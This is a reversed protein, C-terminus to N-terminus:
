KVVVKVGNLIYMGRGLTKLSNLNAGSMLLKGDMSYVDGRQNIKEIASSVDKVGDIVDKVAAAICISYDYDETNPDIVPCNLLDLVASCPTVGHTKGHDPSKAQIGDFYIQEENVTYSVLTGILGNVTAGKMVPKEDGPISFKIPEVYEDEPDYDLTDGFIFIAPDGAPISSMAKVALFTEADEDEGVTYQGVASYAYAGDPADVPTITVSHCWDIIRGPKVNKYFTFEDPAVYEEDVACIVLGSNSTPETTSWTCFRCNSEGAHMYNTSQGALNKGGLLSRQYGIAKYTYLTPITKLYVNNQNGTGDVYVYLGTAKNQLVYVPDAEDKGYPLVDRQEQANFVARYARYGETATAVDEATAKKVVVKNITKYTDLLAQDEDSLQTELTVPYLQFEAAHFYTWGGEGDYPGSSVNEQFPDFEINNGARRAITFRLKNYSGELDIPLCSVVESPKSYPAEICGINTWTEGDNSGQVYMRVVHGFDNGRRTMEVQVLGSVPENLAVQLYPQQKYQQHWDSHWFTSANGDILYEIHLGESPDSANSSLQSADTILADGRTYSIGMMDIAMLMNEKFDAFLDVYNAEGTGEEVFRFMSADKDDIADDHMFFLRNSERLEEGGIAELWTTTTTVEAGEENTSTETESELKAATVFTGWMTHQDEQTLGDCNDGGEKNFGYADYMEETPYMIRYWKDTEVGNAKEMISKYMAKLMVSYKHSQAATYSGAADYAKAAAYLAEYASVAEMDSWYGPNSGEEISETANSYTSLANRLETPDVMASLFADYAAKLANYDEVTIDEDAIAANTEYATELAAAVDGMMVFQSTPSPEDRMLQIEAAHWFTRFANNAYATNTAFVRIYSFAEDMHFPMSNEAGADTHPLEFVAIQTWETADADNAGALVVKAPRDNDAGDRERLYFTCDGVLDQMGSIQVYHYGEEGETILSYPGGEEGYMRPYQNSSHWSTHWFSSANGDILNGINTGESEDSNPSSLQSASTIQKLDKADAMTAAIEARLKANLEVLVDHNKIPEFAEVLEAVEEESVPELYWESTWCDGAARGNGITRIWFTLEQEIGTDTQRYGHFTGDSDEYGLSSSADEVPTGHNNQHFYSGDRPETPLRMAFIDREEEGGFMGNQVAHKGAYDFILHTADAVDATMYMRNEQPSSFSIYTDLGVNQLLISDGTESKTFKWVFNALGYNITSYVGKNPHDKSYSAAIAKDVCIPKGNDDVGTKYREAAFIRYYGDPVTYPVESDLIVQYMSDLQASIAQIDDMTIVNPDQSPDYGDEEGYLSWGLFGEDENGSWLSDVQMALAIFKDWTAWDNHQGFDEGMNMSTGGDGWVADEIQASYTDLINNIMNYTLGYYFSNGIGDTVSVGDVTELSWVYAPTYSFCPTATEGVNYTWFTRGADNWSSTGHATACSRIAFKFSGDDIKLFLVQREWGSRDSKNQAYYDQNLNATNNSLGPNTFAGNDDRWIRFCKVGTKYDGEGTRLQVNFLGADDPNSTLRGNATVYYKAGNATTTIYYDGNKLEGEDDTFALIAANYELDTQAHVRSSTMMTALPFLLSLLFYLKKM